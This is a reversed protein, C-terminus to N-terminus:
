DRTLPLILKLFLRLGPGVLTVGAELSEEVSAKEGTGLSLLHFVAVGFGVAEAGERGTPFFLFM